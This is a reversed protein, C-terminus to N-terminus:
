NNTQNVNADILKRVYAYFIIFTVTWTKRSDLQLQLRLSQRTQNLKQLFHVVNRRLKWNSHFKRSSLMNLPRSIGDIWIWNVSGNFSHYFNIFNVLCAFYFRNVNKVSFCWFHLTVFSGQLFMKKKEFFFFIHIYVVTKQRVFPFFLTNLTFGFFSLCYSHRMIEHWLSTNILHKPM